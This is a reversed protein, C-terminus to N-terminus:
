AVRVQGAMQPNEIIMKALRANRMANERMEAPVEALVCRLSADHSEQYHKTAFATIALEDDMGWAYVEDNVFIDSLTVKRNKTISAIAYSQQTIPLGAARRKRLYSYQAELRDPMADIAEWVYRLCEADDSVLNILNVLVIYREQVWTGKLDLYRKYYRVADEKRGADRYSQALYFLTRADGTNKTYEIELTCADKIYKDPDSSRVGACQTQMYTNRPLACLVVKGNDGEKGEKGKCVPAEHVVGEYRWDVGTRFIQVRQHWINGHRIQMIFGDIDKKAWMEDPFPAGEITDDADIMIAWDMKGDCLKLAETRNVGFNVWPRDVVEGEIGMVGMIEGVIEKTRDTSGTDVIVYTSIYPLVSLLVKEMNAEENKVIMVLGVVPAKEATAM